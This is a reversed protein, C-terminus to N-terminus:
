GSPSRRPWLWLVASYIRRRRWLLYTMLVNMTAISAATGVAAGEAGFAPILVASLVLNVATGATVAWTLLVSEGIMLLITAAFGTAVNVLQGLCVIRLTTVGAEFELGFLGLVPEAFVIAAIAVPLSGLFVLRAGRILLRQLAEPQGREHLEAITPMLSPTAALLLFPLLAAIRTAVSFIGAEEPGAISGTLITAAQLNLASIGTAVFIPLAGVLWARTEDVPEARRAETPLTRRLLYAGLLGACAGAAVKAGVASTASLGDSLTTELLLVLAIMLLPVVLTEPVRALVVVGFAQMASQRLLVLALLPVIALGVLTPEFLPPKPWDVVLFVAGATGTVALSAVFVAQNSRRLLGRARSWDERVRYTALERVVLPFLGLSAPMVLLLGWAIAFAYVGYGEPGLLRSLLLAIVFQLALTAGNLGANGTTQAVLRRARSGGGAALLRSTATPRVTAPPAHLPDGDAVGPAETV